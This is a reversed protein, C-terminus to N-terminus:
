PTVEDGSPEDSQPLISSPVRSLPWGPGPLAPAMLGTGEGETTRWRLLGFLLSTERVRQGRVSYRRQAWVGALSRRDEDRDCERRWLGLWSRESLRDEQRQRTYLEWIWAWHYDFVPMRWLPNLAPTAFDLSDDSWSTKYLPWLKRYHSGGERQDGPLGSQDKPWEDIAQWFPLLSTSDRETEPYEEHRINGLPWIFWRSDLGDGEYSSYLPWFRRRRPGDTEGPELLRVVPWPGDWSWYGNSEHSAYGFFPYLVATSTYGARTSRGVLPFFMWRREQQDEPRSKLNNQWHFFPWLFFWRDYHGDWRDRGVLPWVRWGPGSDGGSTYCFFPWLFHYSTRGYRESRAWIPFLIFEARDFSLFDEVVGGFPFWARVTRRDPTRAWYIGPLALVSWTWVGEDSVRSEYRALPLLRWVKHLERRRFSGLPPLFYADYDGGAQPWQSYLPRLAWEETRGGHVSTRWRVAGGLAETEVGGGAPSLQSFAPALHRESDLSACGAWLPALALALLARRELCALHPDGPAM